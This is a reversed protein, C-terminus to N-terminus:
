GYIGGLYKALGIEPINDVPSNYKLKYNLYCPAVLNPLHNAGAITLAIVDESPRIEVEKEEVMFEFKPVILSTGLAKAIKELFDLSPLTDGNEIRAISPQKTGIKKALQAQTMKKKLRAEFVLNAMQYKFRNRERIKRLKKNRFLIERAEQLDM